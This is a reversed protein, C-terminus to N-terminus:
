LGFPSKQKYAAYGSEDDPLFELHCACMEDTTEVGYRVRRPPSHPNRPNDASNDYYAALTVVTGQPLRVPKAFRYQDQWDLDWDTIWLLPQVAGDPLTAALRFERCLYHAHPVVTYLHVDAKIRASIIIKHRKAGPPIDIHETCLTFGAMTKSVPNRSFFLGVSSCDLEPKGTPHYHIQFVVDSGKPIVRGVGDPAFRPMMGPTWAGMSPYPLDLGGTEAFLGTFGAESDSSDRRRADGTQDLYSRSHHVVRRNGPRFEIGTVIADRDLPVAIPFSRYVDPGSAALRYPEPMTLVLDPQGLQWGKTFVPPAPLDAPDGQKCGTEAWVRIVDRERASLRGADLFVGAGPHPKWPPMRGDATVERIFEARKAADHYTLLAFPGVEGIRHCHVCSRYLIPAVHRNFTIPDNQTKAKGNAPLPCGFAPAHTVVPMEGALISQLARELDHVQAVARHKRSPAYRDDIRGHYVVQGDPLLMVAEPTVRVDAQQAVTQEPDLLIPFSLGFEAAHNAARQATVDSDSHIGLFLVGRSEFQKFLRAMEPAYGNAVPCETALFFLVIAPHGNWEHTTHVGGRVNKLAFERIPGAGDGVTQEFLPEIRPPRNLWIIAQVTLGITVAAIV